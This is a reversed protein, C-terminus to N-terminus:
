AQPAVGLRSKDADFILTTSRFYTTGFTWSDSGDDMAIFPLLCKGRFMGIKMQDKGLTVEVGAIKIKIKADADCKYVFMESDDANLIEGGELESMINHIASRPGYLYDAGSDITATVSKGNISASVSWVGSSSDVDTYKIFGKAKWWDIGGFKLEAGSPKLTFQFVGKNVAHQKRLTEFLTPYGDPFSQISPFGLGCIGKNPGEDPHIFNDNGRGIAVDKAKILGLRFSDTYVTGTTKTGDLYAISFSKKSNKAWLSPKYADHNVITDSSGTDFEFYISQLGFTLKGAWETNHNNINALGSVADARKMHGTGKLPHARGTNRQYNRFMTARKQMIKNRNQIIWQLDVEEDPNPQSSRRELMIRIGDNRSKDTPIAFVVCAAVLYLTVVKLPFQMLRHLKM